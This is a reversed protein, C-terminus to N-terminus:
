VGGVETMDKAYPKRKCEIIEAPQELHAILKKATEKDSFVGLEEWWWLKGVEVRYLIGHTTPYREQIPTIRYQKRGM